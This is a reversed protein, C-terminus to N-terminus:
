WDDSLFQEAIIWLLLFTIVSQRVKSDVTIGIANRLQVVYRLFLLHEHVILLIRPNFFISHHVFINTPNKLIFWFNSLSWPECCNPICSTYISFDTHRSFDLAWEGRQGQLLSVLLSRMKAKMLLRLTLSLFLSKSYTRSKM